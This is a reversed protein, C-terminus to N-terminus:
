FVPPRATTNGPDAMPSVVVESNPKKPDRLVSILHDGRHSSECEHDSRRPLVSRPPAEPSDADLFKTEITISSGARMCASPPPYM